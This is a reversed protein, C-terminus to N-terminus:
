PCMLASSICMEKLLIKVAARAKKVTEIAAELTSPWALEKLEWPVKEHAAEVIKCLVAAGIPDDAAL